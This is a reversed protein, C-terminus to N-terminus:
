NFMTPDYNFVLESIINPNALEVIQTNKKILDNILCKQHEILTNAQINSQINAQINTQGLIKIKSGFKLQQSFKEIFRSFNNKNDIEKSNITRQIIEISKIIEGYYFNLYYIKELLFYDLEQYIFLLKGFKSEKSDKILNSYFIRNAQGFDMDCVATYSNDQFIQTTQIKHSIKILNPYIGGKKYIVYNIDKYINADINLIWQILFTINLSLCYCKNQDYPISSIPNVILDIDNSKYVIKTPDMNMGSMLLQLAKGGKLIIRYDQENEELKYNILGTLLLIVCYLEVTKTIDKSNEYAKKKTEKNINCFIDNSIKYMPFIKNINECLRGNLNDLINNKILILDEQSFLPNWFKFDFTKKYKIIDLDIKAHLIKLIKNQEKSFEYDLTELTEVLNLILNRYSRYDTRGVLENLKWSLLRKRLINIKDQKVNVSTKPDYNNLNLYNEYEILDNETLNKNELNEVYKELCSYMKFIQEKTLLDINIGTDYYEKIKILDEQKLNEIKNKLLLFIQYTHLKQKENQNLLQYIKSKKEKILDKNINVFDKELEWLFKILEIKKHYNYPVSDESGGSDIWNMLIKYKVWNLKINDIIIVIQNKFDHVNSDSKLPKGTSDVPMDIFIFENLIKDSFLYKMFKINYYIKSRIEEINSSQTLFDNELEILKNISTYFLIIYTDYYSQPIFQKQSFM